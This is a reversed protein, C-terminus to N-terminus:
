LLTALLRLADITTFVGVPREADVVVTCGYKHEAMAAIVTGIPTDPGVAYPEPTMADYVAIKEPDLPEMAEVLAIDRESLVGRLVGSELVPLHRIGHERMKRAAEAIPRDLGTSHPSRTMFSSIPEAARNMGSM